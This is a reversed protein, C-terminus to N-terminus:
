FALVKEYINENKLSNIKDMLLKPRENENEANDNVNDNDNNDNIDVKEQILEEENGNDNVNIDNEDNKNENIDQEKLKMKQLEDDIIGLNDFCMMPTKMKQTTEMVSEWEKKLEFMYDNPKGMGKEKNSHKFNWIIEESYMGFSAYVYGKRIDEGLLKIIFKFTKFSIYDGPTNCKGM